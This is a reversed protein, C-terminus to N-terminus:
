EHVRGGVTSAAQDFLAHLAQPHPAGEIVDIVTGGDLVALTPVASVRFYGALGPEEDVNVKLVKVRGVYEDALRDLVPSLTKCPPCWTAYFDVVVPVDAEVVDARFTQATTHAVQSM